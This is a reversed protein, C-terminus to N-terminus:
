CPSIRPTSAPTQLPALHPSPPASPPVAPSHFTTSAQNQIKPTGIRHSSALRPVIWRPRPTIGRVLNCKIHAKVVSGRGRGVCDHRDDRRFGGLTEEEKTTWACRTKDQRIERTGTRTKQLGHLLYLAASRDEERRADRDPRQSLKLGRRAERLRCDHSKNTNCEHIDEHLCLIRRSRKRRWSRWTSM